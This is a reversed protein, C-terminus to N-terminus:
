QIRKIGKLIEGQGIRSDCGNRQIDKILSNIKKLIKKDDQFSLYDEWGRETFISNM